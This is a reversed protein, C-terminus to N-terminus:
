LDELALLQKVIEHENLGFRDRQQQVTGQTVPRDPVAAYRVVNRDCYIAIEKAAAAVNDEIVFIKSGKERCRDLLEKDLPKLFRMHVLGFDHEKSIKEALPLLTGTAFITVPRIERLVSWKGFVIESEDISEPMTGRNYRIVAPEKRDLAMKLMARLENLSGPSYVVINPMSLLFAPDYVGQHTEGDEGALGARDLGIVVPLNQLCVDHLLQDYARQLFSSYVAVVPRMGGAALAAAMTVAHEEAIGVDFFRDPFREAFASLGTGTSMAATIAVINADKEALDCLTQGFVQSCTLCRKKEDGACCSVASSIGHYYEPDQEAPPYGKGKRTVAHLVVPRNMDRIRKLYDILKNVDHGDVPGIYTFGLDEFPLNPLLFHKIRNKTRGLHKSVWRGFSGTELTHVVGRKLANYMKGTRMSAFNQTLGGVNKSISMENDNLIVIVPLKDNGIDDLAEFSLGGTMAGDGVLAIAAGKEGRLQKARAFGLMASLSTSAHGTNFADHESEERKPFGSIGGEQRLSSFQERRGTLIKHAYAQHGVDFIIRDEPSNFVYHIAVILEVAGLSSALHGGTKTVIEIMYARLEECLAPLDREEIKKLDEISNIKDLLRYEM